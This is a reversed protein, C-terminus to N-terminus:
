PAPVYKTGDLNILWCTAEEFVGKYTGSDVVSSIYGPTASAASIGSVGEGNAKYEVENVTLTSDYYCFCNQVTIRIRGLVGGVYSTGSINGYNSCGDVIGTNIKRPLGFIGGVHQKGTINGKNVCNSISLTLNTNDSMEGLIGGTGHTATSNVTGTASNLCGSISVSTSGSLVNGIIGGAGGGNSTIVGNNTCNTITLSGNYESGVIGGTGINDATADRSTTISANNVCNSITTTGLSVGVIGGNQQSQGSISGSVKVNSITTNEARAALGSARQGTASIDVNELELNKVTGGTLRSFLGVADTGSYKFGTIKHNAGDFTGSFPRADISGIPSANTDGTVDIDNGLTVFEGSFTHNDAANVVEKFAWLDDANLIVYPNEETGYGDQGYSGTKLFIEAETAAVYNDGDKLFYEGESADHDLYTCTYYEVSSHAFGMEADHKQYNHGVVPLILDNASVQNNGEADTYYRGCTECHYSPSMGTSHCTPASGANYVLVHNTCEYLLVEEKVYNCISCKYVNKGNQSPTPDVHESEQYVFNHPEVGDTVTCGANTCKHEHTTETTVYEMHHETMPIIEGTVEGCITCQSYNDHGVHYCTAEDNLPEGSGPTHTIEGNANCFCNHEAVGTGSGVIEGVIHGLKSSSGYLETPHTETTGVVKTIQATSSQYCHEVVGTRLVGVIGGLQGKCSTINGFNKNNKIEATHPTESKFRTLGIIGGSYGLTEAKTADILGYNSCGNVEFDGDLKDVTAGLIGGLNPYSHGISAIKARNICNKINAKQSDSVICGVVGACETTGEISGSVIEVNEITGGALRAVLGSARQGSGKVTVNSIKLNKIEGNTLRSFLALADGLDKDTGHITSFYLNSLTHNQGDFIGSFPKADGYGIPMGFPHEEDNNFNVDNMLKFYKGAFSNATAANTLDRLKYFDEKCTMIYPNIQTGADPDNYQCKTDDFIEDYTKEVYTTHGGEEVQEFYTGCDSCLYYDSHYTGFTVLEEHLTGYAHGKPEGHSFVHEPHNSDFAGCKSCVYYYTAAHTCDAPSALNADHDLVTELSFDHANTVFFKDEERTSHAGCVCSKYYYNSEGCVNTKTGVLYEDAVVEQNFAHNAYEKQHCVTCEHYHQTQNGSDVHWTNEFQHEDLAGYEAHCVSCVAKHECTSAGGTHHEKESQEGCVTCVRYHYDGDVKYESWTHVHPAPEPENGGGGGQNNATCAACMFTATLLVFLKTISNKM